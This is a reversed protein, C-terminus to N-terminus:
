AFLSQGVFGGPQAGPPVAFLASANHQIYENLADNRASGASSRSSSRRPDRQFGIFFLGADLEGTARRHRRHVLLRPAPHPDGGNQVPAALRIHADVPIVPAGDAGERRPRGHRVRGARRAARRHGQGPRDDAGPRRAIARDWTEILMRIRRAVLYTGGRM